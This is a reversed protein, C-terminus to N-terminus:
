SAAPAGLDRLLRELRIRTIKRQEEAAIRLEIKPSNGLRARTIALLEEPDKGTACIICIFGFREEYAVNAAALATRVDTGATMLGAQERASWGKAREGQQVAAQLEGLRPHHSFAELWDERSMSKCVDDSATLLAALTTFPRRAIMADVWHSSGCCARLHEALRDRDMADLATVGRTMVEVTM